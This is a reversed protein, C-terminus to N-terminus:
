APGRSQIEAAVQRIDAPAATQGDFEPYAQLDVGNQALSAAVREDISEQEDENGAGEIMDTMMETRMQLQDYMRAARMISGPATTSATDILMQRTTSETAAMTEATERFQQMSAMQRQRRRESHAIKAQRQIADQLELLARQQDAIEFQTTNPNARAQVFRNQMIRLQARLSGLRREHAVCSCEMRYNAEEGQRRTREEATEPILSALGLLLADAWQRWM